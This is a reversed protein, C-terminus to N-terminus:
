GLLLALAPADDGWEAAPALVVSGRTPQEADASIRFYAGRYPVPDPSRQILLRM